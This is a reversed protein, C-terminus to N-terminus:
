KSKIQTFLIGLSQEYYKLQKLEPTSVLALSVGREGARATRGSRHTYYEDKDPLQYHVVYALKDIDIGRAALDTAVLVKTVEKKFARMVKDREIQKLDGHIAEASINKAQLQKALRDAAAKTRCFVLGREDGYSKIFQHVINLKDHVDCVIYQHDINKNVLQTASVTIRHANDKMHRDVIEVIGKPMTASFLWKSRASTLKRLISDLEKKFGMSLMEDAEDLIVTHVASLDVAERDLLDILRGPTAVVIHTPRKLASIQRDINPGGYVAEAFIKASYKTFRFLQKAVQQGLERTPCLILGQVVGKKPDINQLLPLGYAATKGTGTQAQGVLDCHAKLLLPITQEQIPTPTVIGLEKLGKVFEKRIGLQLFDM